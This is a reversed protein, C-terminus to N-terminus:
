KGGYSGRGRGNGMVAEQSSTLNLTGDPKKPTRRGAGGVNKGGKGQFSKKWDPNENRGEWRGGHSRNVNYTESDGKRKGRKKSWGEGERRENKSKKKEGFLGVMKRNGRGGKKMLQGRIECV